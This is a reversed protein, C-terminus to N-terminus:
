EDNVMMVYGEIHRVNENPFQEFTCFVLNGGAARGSRELIEVAKSKTPSGWHNWWMTFKGLLEDDYGPKIKAIGGEEFAVSEPVSNFLVDVPAASEDARADELQEFRTQAQESEAIAEQATGFAKYRFNPGKKICGSLFVVCSLLGCFVISVRALRGAM